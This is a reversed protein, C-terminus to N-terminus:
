ELVIEIDETDCGVTYYLSLRTGQRLSFVSDSSPGLSIPRSIVSDGGKVVIDPTLKVKSSVYIKYAGDYFTEPFIMDFNVSESVRTHCDFRLDAVPKPGLDYDEEYVSSSSLHGSLLKRIHDRKEEPYSLLLVEHDKIFPSPKKLLNEVHSKFGIDVTVAQPIVVSDESLQSQFNNLIQVMPENNTLGSYMTESIVLDVKKDHEYTTADVCKVDIRDELGLNQVVMIAFEYSAQNIELATVHVNDFYVAAIVAFIPLPGTGADIMEISEKRESLVKLHYNLAKIFKETREQELICAMARRLALGNNDGETHSFYKTKLDGKLLDRLERCERKDIFCANEIPGDFIETFQNKLDLIHNESGQIKDM